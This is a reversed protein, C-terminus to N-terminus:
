VPTPASSVDKNLEIREEVGVRVGNINVPANNNLGAVDHFQAIFKQPPHMISVGKLWGWGTTVLCVAGVAFLGVRVEYIPKNNMQRAQVRYIPTDRNESVERSREHKELVNPMKM